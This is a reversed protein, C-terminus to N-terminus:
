RYDDAVIEMDQIFGDPVAQKALSVFGQFFRNYDKVLRM